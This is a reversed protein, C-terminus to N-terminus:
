TGTTSQFAAVGHHVSLSFAQAAWRSCHPLHGHEGEGKWGSTGRMAKWDTLEVTVDTGPVKVAKHKQTWLNGEVWRRLESIQLRGEVTEQLRQYEDRGEKSMWCGGLVSYCKVTVHGMYNM